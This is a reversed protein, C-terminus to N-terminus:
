QVEDGEEESAYYAHVGPVQQGVKYLANVIPRLLQKNPAETVVTKTEMIMPYAAKLAESDTIKITLKKTEKREPKTM